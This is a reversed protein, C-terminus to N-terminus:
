KGAKNNKRIQKRLEKNIELLIQNEDYKKQKERREYEYAQRIESETFISKKLKEIEKEFVQQQERMETKLEDNRLLVAAVEKNKRIITRQYDVMQLRLLRITEEPTLERGSHLVLLTEEM